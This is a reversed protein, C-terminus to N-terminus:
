PLSKLSFISGNYSQALNYMQASGSGLVDGLTLTKTVKLRFLSVREYRACDLSKKM